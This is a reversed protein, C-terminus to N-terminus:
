GDESWRRSTRRHDVPRRPWGVGKAKTAGHMQVVLVEGGLERICVGRAGWEVNEEKDRQFACRVRTAGMRGEIGCEGNIVWMWESEGAM